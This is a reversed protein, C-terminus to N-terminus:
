KLNKIRKICARIRNANKTDSKSIADILSEELKALSEKVPKKKTQQNM